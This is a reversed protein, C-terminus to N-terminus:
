ICLYIYIYRLKYVYNQYLLYLVHLYNKMLELYVFQCQINYTNAWLHTNPTQFPIYNSNIKCFQQMNMLSNVNLMFKETPM